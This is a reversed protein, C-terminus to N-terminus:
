KGGKEKNKQEIKEQKDILKDLNKNIKDFREQTENKMKDLNDQIGDIKQGLSKSPFDIQETIILPKEFFTKSICLSVIITLIMTSTFILIEKLKSNM